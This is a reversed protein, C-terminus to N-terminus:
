DALRADLFAGHVRAGGEVLLSTVGRAGLERLLAPLDVGGDPMRAAPLVAATVGLEELRRRREGFADAEDAAPEAAAVLLPAKQAVGALIRRELGLALKSDLLVRLPEKRGRTRCTLEPDDREVTGRGILIADFDAREARTKRRTEESSIWKSDGSRTAIRGDATMAWKLTVLPVGATIWRFYPALLMRAEAELIGAAVEIGAAALDALGVGRTKPNPDAAAYFVRRFGAAIIARSCPPTKGHHGCPELSVYLDAGRLDGAGLDSARAILDAEAHALGFGRHWGEGAVEGHRVAVAGVPPNPSTRGLGRRALRLARRM